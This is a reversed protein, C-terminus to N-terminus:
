SDLYSTNLVKVIESAINKGIGEVEQLEKESANAIARISGFHTLLRKALVASVNPLSEVLFQQREKLSM